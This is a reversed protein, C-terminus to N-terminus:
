IIDVYGCRYTRVYESDEGVRERKQNTICLKESNKVLYIINAEALRIAHTGTNLWQM